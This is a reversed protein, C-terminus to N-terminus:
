DATSYAGIRKRARECSALRPFAHAAATQCTWGHHRRVCSSGQCPATSNLYARIVKRATACPVSGRLVVIGIRAGDADTILGCSRSAVPSASATTTALAGATLLTCLVAIFRSM